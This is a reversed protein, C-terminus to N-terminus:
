RVTPKRTKGYHKELYQQVEWQGTKDAALWIFHVLLRVLPGRFLKFVLLLAALAEELTFLRGM